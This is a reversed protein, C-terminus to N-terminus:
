LINFYDVKILYIQSNPHRKISNYIEVTMSM